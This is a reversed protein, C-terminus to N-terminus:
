KTDINVNNKNNKDEDNKDEDNKDEDNKDEDNDNDKCEESNSKNLTELEKFNADVQEFLSKLKPNYTKQSVLNRYHSIITRFQQTLKVNSKATKSVDLVFNEMIITPNNSAVYDKYYDTFNERLLGISEIIKDFAMNCRPIQKRIENVSQLVINVFDNIDVDPSVVAEYVDHSIMYLKHLILLLFRRDESNLKDDIYIHKFNLSQLDPLPSITLGGSKLIFKDRLNDQDSIYGKFPLLNKCTVIIIGLLENKKMHEFGSSFNSAIDKPVNSYDVEQKELSPVSTEKIYSSLDPLNFWKLYLDNLHDVYKVLANEITPFKKIICSRSLMRLLMIFRDTHRSLRQYKQHIVSLTTNKNDMIGNFMDVVDRNRLTSKATKSIFKTKM